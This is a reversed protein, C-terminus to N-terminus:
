VREVKLSALPSLKAELWERLESESGIIAPLSYGTYRKQGPGAKQYTFVRLPSSEGSDRVNMSNPFDPLGGLKEADHKSVNFVKKADSANILIVGEAAMDAEAGPKVDNWRVAEHVTIPLAVDSLIDLWCPETRRHPRIRGLAQELGAETVQWRLEEALPEPHRPVTTAVVAGSAVRIGGALKPFMHDRLHDPLTPPLYDRVLAVPRGLYVRASGEVDAPKPTPQGIIILGPLTEFDNMGNLAGFHRPIVNKPLKAGHKELWGKFTILGIMSPAALAARWRIYRLLDKDNGPKAGASEVLGMKSKSGPAGLVQQVTICDPWKIKIDAKLLSCPPYGTPGEIGLARDVLDASPATADLVLTAAIWSPHVWRRPYITLESGAVKIRGSRSPDDASFSAIQEWMAGAARALKNKTKHDRSAITREAESMDPRLVRSSVRRQELTAAQMATHSGIRADSLVVQSLWGDGNDRMAGALRHRISTLMAIEDADCAEIKASCLRDLNIKLPKGIAIDHFAEDIVLLDLLTGLPNGEEPGDFVFEPRKLALTASTVIWVDPTANRQKEHGCIHAFPCPVLVGDIQQVCVASRVSLSLENATNVADLNRCMTQGPEDPDDQTRGRYVQANVGHSRLGKAVQDALEIYPVVYVIRFRPAWKAVKISAAHTKGGGAEIKCIWVPPISAILPTKTKNHNCTARWAMMETEFDALVNRLNAEAEALPLRRDASTAEMKPAAVPETWNIEQRLWDYAVAIDSLGLCVAVLGADNYGQGTGFDVIAGSDYVALSLGRKGPKDSGSPRFSAVARWCDAQRQLGELNLKPLWQHRANRVAINFADDGYGTGHSRAPRQVTEGLPHARDSAEWGSARLVKEMKDFHARTLVPLDALPTDLLTRETTWRYPQGIDPHITPPLVTQKGGSM